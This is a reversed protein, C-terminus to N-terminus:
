RAPAVGVTRATRLTRRNGDDDGVTLGGDPAIQLVRASFADDGDVFRLWRNKGWLAGDLHRLQADDDDPWYATLSETVAAITDEISVTRSFAQVYTAPLDAPARCVNIGVGAVVFGNGGVDTGGECLIGALKAAEPGALIDNPWKVCVPAVGVQALARHVCAGVRLSAALPGHSPAPRLVYSLYAGGAPSLWTRGQQGRGATQETASVLTGHVAGARALAKARDNTSGITSHHERM